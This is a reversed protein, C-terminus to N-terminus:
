SRLIKRLEEDFGTIFAKKQLIEHRLYIRENESSFIIEHIAPAQNIRLSQIKDEPIGLSKALVKATGSPADKKSTAHIEVFDLIEFEKKCEELLKSFLKIGKAYNAKWIFTTQHIKALKELEDIQEFTYGTTGSFVICGKKIAQILIDYVETSSFDVVVDIPYPVDLINQYTEVVKHQIVDIGVIHFENKYKEYIQSGMKGCIGIIAMYM